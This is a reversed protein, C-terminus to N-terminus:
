ACVSNQESTTLSVHKDHHHLRRTRKHGVRHPQGTLKLMGPSSTPPTTAGEHWGQVRHQMSRQLKPQKISHPQRQMPRCGGAYM